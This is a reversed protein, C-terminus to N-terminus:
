ENYGYNRESGQTLINLTPPTGAEDADFVHKYVLMAM